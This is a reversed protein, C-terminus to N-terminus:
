AASGPRPALGRRQLQSKGVDEIEEAINPWDLEADNVLEGAARRRLLEAQRESWLLIDDEYLDAMARRGGRGPEHGAQRFLPDTTRRLNRILPGMRRREILWRRLGPDWEGGAQRMLPELDSPCRVAVM